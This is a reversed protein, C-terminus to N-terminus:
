VELTKKEGLWHWWHNEECEPPRCSTLTIYIQIPVPSQFSLKKFHLLTVETAPCSHSVCLPVTRAVPFSFFFIEHIGNNEDPVLLIYWVSANTGSWIVSCGTIERSIEIKRIVATWISFFEVREPFVRSLGNADRWPRCWHPRPWVHRSHTLAGDLVSQTFVREFSDGHTDQCVALLAGRCFLARNGIVYGDSLFTVHM